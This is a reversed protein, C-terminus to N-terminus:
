FPCVLPDRGCVSGGEAKNRVSFDSRGVEISGYRNEGRPRGGRVGGGSGDSPTLAPKSIAHSVTPM